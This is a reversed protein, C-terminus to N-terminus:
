SARHFRQVVNENSIRFGRHDPDFTLVVPGHAYVGEGTRTFTQTLPPRADPPTITVELADGARAIDYVASMTDSVFRGEPGALTFRPTDLVPLGPDVAALISALLRTSDVDGRGCLLALGLMAGPHWAFMAQFGAYNGSHLVWDRSLMLGSAYGFIHGPIPLIVPSGDAYRGPETMLRSVEPTWVQHGVAIDHHYKALDNITLMMAGAGGFKPIDESLIFNGDKPVYGRAINPEDPFAGHLVCSRSMGLPDLINAAVYAAFPTGSVREVLESLLLYGGNSYEFTAGPPFATQPYQILMRLTESRTPEGAHRYGALPLLKANNPLGSTHHLLMDVTIPPSRLPMEPIYKRIDDGLRVRGAVVLQIVALATFQKAVSGAYYITDADPVRRTAINALGAAVFETKGDRFVGVACSPAAAGNSAELVARIKATTEAPEPTTSPSSM